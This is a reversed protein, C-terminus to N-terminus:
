QAKHDVEKKQVLTASLINHSEFVYLFLTVKADPYVM